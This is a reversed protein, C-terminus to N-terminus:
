ANFYAFKYIASDASLDACDAPFTFLIFDASDAYFDAFDAPFLMIFTIVTTPVLGSIM